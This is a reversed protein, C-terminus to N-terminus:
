ERYYLYIGCVMVLYGVLFLFSEPILWQEGLDVNGTCYFLLLGLCWVLLTRSNKWVNRTMSSTAQTALINFIGTLTVWLTLGFSFAVIAPPMNGQIASGSDAPLFPAVILNIIGFFLLGYLGEMGLLLTAPFDTEHMFTEETIDQLVSMISQGIILCNGITHDRGSESGSKVLVHAFGILLLGVSVVGVGRWRSLSVRRKRIFRAAMVSLTLESGAMLMEAVSASVYLYSAWRLAANCLNFFGPIAPRVYWPVSHAWLAANSSAESLGHSSGQRDYQQKSASVVFVADSEGIDAGLQYDDSILNSGGKEVSDEPTSMKEYYNCCHTHSLHKTILYVVLSMSQGCLYMVTVYFPNDYGLQFFLKVGVARGAGTVIM